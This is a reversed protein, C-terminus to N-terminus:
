LGIVHMSRYASKTRINRRYALMMTRINPIRDAADPVREKLESNIFKIPPM